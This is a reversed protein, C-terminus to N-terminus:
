CLPYPRRGRDAHYCWKGRTRWCFSAQRSHFSCAQSPKRYSFELVCGCGNLLFTLLPHPPYPFSSTWDNSSSEQTLVLLAKFSMELPHGRPPPLNALSLIGTACLLAIGQLIDSCVVFHRRTYVVVCLLDSSVPTLLFFAFM